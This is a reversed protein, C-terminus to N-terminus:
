IVSICLVPFRQGLTSADMALALRKETPPWWALVWRLLPAFCTTVELEQRKITRKAGAKHAADYCWARLQQRLADDNRGVIPALVTVVSSIGCSQALVMGFRWLALVVAQAKTLHPMHSSVTETWPSLGESRAMPRRRDSISDFVVM